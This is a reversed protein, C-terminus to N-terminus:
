TNGNASGVDNPPYISKSVATYRLKAARAAYLPPWRTLGIRVDPFCKSRLHVRILLSARLHASIAPPAM